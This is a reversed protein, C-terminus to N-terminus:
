QDCPTALRFFRRSDTAPLAVVFNSNLITPLNTVSTWSVVADLRETAELRLGHAEASWWITANTGTREIKLTPLVPGIFDFSQYAPGIPNTRDPLLYVFGLIYGANPWTYTGSQTLCSRPAFTVPEDLFVIGNTVTWTILGSSDLTHTWGPPDQVELVACSPLVISEWNTGIGWVYPDDGRQFTYSFWGGGRNTSTVYCPIAPVTNAVALMLLLTRAYSQM